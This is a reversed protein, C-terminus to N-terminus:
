LLKYLSAISQVIVKTIICLYSILLLHPKAYVLGRIM